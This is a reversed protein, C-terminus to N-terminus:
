SGAIVWRNIADVTPLALWPVYFTANLGSKTGDYVMQIDKEGKPVHFIYMLSKIYEINVFEVYGKYIVRQM